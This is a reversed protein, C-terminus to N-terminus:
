PREEEYPVVQPQALEGPHTLEFRFAARGIHVLDGHELRTGRSSVPAFNVWTGAVSGDDALHFSGDPARYLRAHLPDVSPHDVVLIAQRADRGLTIERRDLPIRSGPIPVAHLAASLDESDPLRRLVAPPGSPSGKRAAAKRAPESRVPVPQTLPDRELRRKQGRSLTPARRRRQLVLILVILAVALAGVIMWQERSLVQLFPLDPKPAVNLQVPLQISRKSLGLQDVAELQLVAKGSQQYGGLPWTFRDFPEELNEDVLVGDAYLRTAQLARPHGDGFEILAQIEVSAPIIAAEVERSPATWGLELAAPPALFIPNPPQVTLSFSRPASALTQGDFQAQVAADHSGSRAIQSTWKAQYVQRLPAIAQELDPLPEPGSFVFFQGGSQEAMAKLPAVLEPTREPANAPAVLWVHVTVGLQSARVTLNTLADLSGALPLPTIYLLFRKMLASPNPDTALDLAQSLSVLSSQQRSLDPRYDQLAQLWAEAGHLRITQLGTNSALSLDDSEIPPHASVWDLLATQVADFRSIGAYRNAFTPNLNYALIVQVGPEIQELADLPVARGDELINVQDKTLGSRFQRQADYAEFFLTMAPFNRSELAAIQVTGQADQAAVPAACALLAAVLLSACLRRATLQFGRQRPIAMILNYEIQAGPCGFIARRM